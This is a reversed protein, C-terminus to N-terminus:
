KKQTFQTDDIVLRALALVPVSLFVGAVGAVEAGALVGFIIMMPHLEVNNGMLKPSIFYDQMLRFIGLFVVVWLVHGYGSLASVAIIIVAAALPGLLPIFECLFAISSLLLAYPVGMASLVISFVVLVTCCLLLLARMYSLLLIHVADVAREVRRRRAGPPIRDLFRERLETGDKLMFFSLIPVLVVYLLNASAALVHLSFRPAVSVLEKSAEGLRDQAASTVPALFPHAAGLRDLFGNLDPPHAVLQSAEDAVKNGIGIAIAALIGLVLLYTLGLVAGRHRQHFRGGIRNVLPYLLYAFLMAVIFLFLTDRIAYILAFFLVTLAM